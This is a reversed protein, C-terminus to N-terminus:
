RALVAGLDATRLYLRFPNGPLEHFSSAQFFQRSSEDLCDVIIAVFPFIQGAHFCDRLALSLLRAGLGKGQYQRDVGLWAIMAVPLPRRPLRKVDDSPLDGYDIQAFTLTYYGLIQGTSDLLVRTSSLQKEHNQLAKTHLWDDVRAQGSHFSKRKLDRSIAVVATGAPLQVDKM